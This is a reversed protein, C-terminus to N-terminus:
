EDYLVTAEAYYRIGKEELRKQIWRKLREQKEEIPRNSALESLPYNVRLARPSITFRTVGAPLLHGQSVLSMVEEITFHPFIVVGSLNHYLGALLQANRESTRDLSAQKQYAFVVKNLKNVKEVLDCINKASWVEGNPLSVVLLLKGEALAALSLELSVSRRLEPLAERITALFEEPKIGWVVHNWTHLSLGPDQQEVVQAIIHPFGLRRVAMVRNTGDLIMYRSEADHFPTVIPPNRLVGNERMKQALPHSRQSDYHEHPIISEVPLIDLHPLKYEM